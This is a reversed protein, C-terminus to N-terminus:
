KGYSKVAHEMGAMAKALDAPNMAPQISISANFALFFPEALMPIQSSDQMDFFIYGTRMGHDAVFYAAEPKIEGLIKEMTTGLTGNQIAANGAEVPINVKLMMRM